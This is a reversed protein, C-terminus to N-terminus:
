IQWGTEFRSPGISHTHFPFDRYRATMLWSRTRSLISHM